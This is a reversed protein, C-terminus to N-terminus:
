SGRAMARSARSVVIDSLWWSQSCNPCPYDYLKKPIFLHHWSGFRQFLRFRSLVRGVDYELFPPVDPKTIYKTVYRLASDTSINSIYCAQGGSVSSWLPQLKHWDLWRAYCLIHFHPHWNNPRGKIEILAAGGVVNKKWFQRARLKRFSKVLHHVGEALDQSNSVSLTLMKFMYGPPPHTHQLIWRLRNRVRFARRASCLSCFRDGCDIPVDLIFGCDRCYLRRTAHPKPPNASM